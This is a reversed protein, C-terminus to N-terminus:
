AVDEVEEISPLNMTYLDVDCRKTWEKWRSKAPSTTQFVRVDPVNDRFTIIPHLVDANSDSFAWIRPYRLLPARERSKHVTVTHSTFLLYEPQTQDWCVEIAVPQKKLLRVVVAYAIFCTQRLDM